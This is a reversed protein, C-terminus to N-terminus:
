KRSRERLPDLIHRVGRQVGWPFTDSELACRQISTDNMM